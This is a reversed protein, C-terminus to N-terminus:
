YNNTDNINKKFSEKIDIAKESSLAVILKIRAKQGPMSEEFFVGLDKLM